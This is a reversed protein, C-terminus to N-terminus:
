FAFDLRTWFNHPKALGNFEAAKHHTYVEAELVLRINARIAFIPGFLVRKQDLSGSLGSGVSAGAPEDWDLTEYLVRGMLWPYIMYEAKAFVTTGDTDIEPATLWPNDHHGRIVGVSLDMDGVSARASVGLYNFRDALADRSAEGFYAFAELLVSNDVWGGSVKTDMSIEQDPFKGLFDRGGLKFKAKFYVDKHPDKDFRGSSGNVVGAGWFVRRGILGSAEIGSQNDQHRYGNFSKGYGGVNWDSLKKNGWLPHNQGVRTTNNNSLLLQPDILGVKLNFRHDPGIPDAFFMYGQKIDASGGQKWEVEGFFGIDEGIRGGTLIEFEHPFEFNWRTASNGGIGSDSWTRQVDHILRLAIPPLGPLTSPWIADPFVEKWPEAGLVVPDDKVFLEDVDPIEYGNLRFAEGFSNLKPIMVHCTQCATRYKRAFAPIAQADDVAGITLISTLVAIITTGAALIARGSSRPEIM